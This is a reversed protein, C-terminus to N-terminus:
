FTIFSNVSLFSFSDSCAVLTYDINHGSKMKIDIFGLGAGKQGPEEEKIITESYLKELEEESLSNVSNIKNKLLEVNSNQIYNGSSILCGKQYMSVVLIGHKGVTNKDPSWGHNCINQLLEVMVNVAKKRFGIDENRGVSGETMTLLSKLNDHTFIGQYIMSIHFKNTFDHLRLINEPNENLGSASKESHVKTNFYFFSINDRLKRFHYLLKNGSKRAMDILGLGAGGKESLGTNELVYKYYEKLEEQNLSNIKDISESLNKIKSDEIINGSTLSYEGEKNLVVFFAHNEENENEDQHRTINQLTEVMVFYFKKQTKASEGTLNLNTEALSLIKDTLGPNFVGKYVYSLSYNEFEKFLIFLQEGTIIDPADYIM